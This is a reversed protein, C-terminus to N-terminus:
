RSRFILLQGEKCSIEIEQETAINHLGRSSPSMEEDDIIWKSGSVCVGKCRGIPFVSFTRGIEISFRKSNSNLKSVICDQLHIYSEIECDLISWYSAFQHQNSGGEVGIIDLRTANLQNAFIISKTLDNNSQDEIEIVELDLQQLEKITKNELSDMDGIVYDATISLELCKEIAGDCAIIKDSKEILHQTILDNPIISNGVILIRVM